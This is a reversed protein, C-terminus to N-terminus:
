SRPVRCDLHSRSQSQATALKLVRCPQSLYIFSWLMLFSLLNQQIWHMFNLTEILELIHLLIPSQGQSFTRILPSLFHFQIICDIIRLGLLSGARNRRISFSCACATHKEVSSLIFFNKEKLRFHSKKIELSVSVLLTQVPTKCCKFVKWTM